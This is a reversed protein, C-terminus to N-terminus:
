GGPSLQVTAGNIMMAGSPMGNVRVRGPGSPGGAPGPGPGIPGQLTAPNLPKLGDDPQAKNDAKAALVPDFRIVSVQGGALDDFVVAGSGIRLLRSAKWASGERVFDSHHTSRNELLASRVGNIVAYGTFIWNPDGAAVTSPIRMADRQSTAADGPGGLSGSDNRVVPMFVNHVAASKDPPDFTASYDEDPYEPPKENAKSALAAPKSSAGSDSQASVYMYVGIGVISVAVFIGVPRSVLM